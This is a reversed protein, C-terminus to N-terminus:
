SFIKISRQTICPYVQLRRNQFPTLAIPSLTLAPEACDSPHHSSPSCPVEALDTPLEPWSHKQLLLLLLPSTVPLPGGLWSVL